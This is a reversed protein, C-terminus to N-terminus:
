TALRGRKSGMVWYYITFSPCLLIPYIMGSIGGSQVPAIWAIALSAFGTFANITAAGISVKTDFVELTNLELADRKHLAHGYLLMFICSVALFGASFIEMLLPM